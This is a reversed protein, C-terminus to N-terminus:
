LLTEYCPVCSVLRHTSANYIMVHGVGRADYVSLRYHIKNKYLCLEDHWSFTPSQLAEKSMGKKGILTKVAKKELKRRRKKNLPKINGSRLSM